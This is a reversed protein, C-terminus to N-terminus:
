LNYRDVNLLVILIITVADTVEGLIVSIVTAALLILVMVDRFQGFFITVPSTKKGEGLSNEGNEKLRQAAEKETLGM